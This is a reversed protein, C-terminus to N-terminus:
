RPEAKFTVSSGTGEKRAHRRTCSSSTMDLKSCRRCRRSVLKRRFEFKALSLELRGALCSFSHPYHCLADVLCLRVKRAQDVSHSLTIYDDNRLCAFRHHAHHWKHGMRRSPPSFPSIRIASSKSAGSGLSKSAANSPRYVCEARCCGVSNPKRGGLAQPGAAGSAVESGFSGTAVTFHRGLVPHEQDALSVSANALLRIAFSRWITQARTIRRTGQPSSARVASYLSPAVM